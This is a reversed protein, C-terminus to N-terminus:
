DVAGADLRERNDSSGYFALSVKHKRFFIDSVWLNASTSAYTQLFEPKRLEPGLNTGDM